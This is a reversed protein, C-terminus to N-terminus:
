KCTPRRSGNENYGHLPRPNKDRHKPPHFNSKSRVISPDDNEEVLVYEAFRIKRSFSKIDTNLANTNRTFTTTFKM